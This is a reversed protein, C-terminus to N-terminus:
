FGNKSFPMLEQSIYKDLTNTFPATKIRIKRNTIQSIYFHPWGNNISIYSVCFVKQKIFTDLDCVNGNANRVLFEKFLEFCVSDIDLYYIVGDEALVLFVYRIQSDKDECNTSFIFEGKTDEKESHAYYLYPKLTLFRFCLDCTIHPYSFGSGKFYIM